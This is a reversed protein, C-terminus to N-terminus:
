LINKYWEKNMATNKPMSTLSGVKKASICGWVQITEPHGNRRQVLKKESAGFLRFPCEDSFIGKQVGPWGGFTKAESHTCVGDSRGEAMKLCARPQHHGSGVASDVKPSLGPVQWGSAKKM